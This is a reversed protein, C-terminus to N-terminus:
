FIQLLTTHMDFVNPLVIFAIAMRELRIHWDECNVVERTPEMPELVGWTSYLLCGMSIQNWAGELVYM